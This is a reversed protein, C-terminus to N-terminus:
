SSAIGVTDAMEAGRTGLPREPGTTSDRATQHEIEANLEAGVLVVVSILWIWTMFVVVAGLSGYTEDYGGFNEVYWSFGLSVAVFLIAALASGWTVWRWRARARSPGYRYLVAIGLAVLVLLVPWRAIKVLTETMGGLGVFGLVIPVVVVAAAAAILFLIAGLTFFLTLANLAFFGRKETEGYAVNLADFMAKMGANASWLAIGLGVLFGLGLTDGSTAALRQMQEALLTTAEAPLVGRVASLHENVSAPDAFLGYLSVFATVAPFIALLAYFAVGAGVALVRDEGIESWTRWLIDKWGNAPIESPRDASRGRDRGAPSSGPDRLAPQAPRPRETGPPRRVERVTSVAVAALAAAFILGGRSGDRETGAM